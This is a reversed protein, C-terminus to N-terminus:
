SLELTLTKRAGTPVGCEVLELVDDSMLGSHFGLDKHGKLAQMAASQLRGIGIQLTDGDNVLSAAHM